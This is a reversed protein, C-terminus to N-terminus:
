KRRLVPTWHLLKYKGSRIERSGLKRERNKIFALDLKKPGAVKTDGPYKEFAKDYGNSAQYVRKVCNKWHFCLKKYDVGPFTPKKKADVNKYQLRKAKYVHPKFEWSRLGSNFRKHLFNRSRLYDKLAEFNIPSPTTHSEPNAPIAFSLAPAMIAIVLFLAIKKM